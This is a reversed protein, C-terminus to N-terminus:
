KVQTHKKRQFYKYLETAMYIYMSNKKKMIYVSEATSPKHGQKTPAGYFSSFLLKYFQYNTLIIIIYTAVGYFFDIWPLFDFNFREM